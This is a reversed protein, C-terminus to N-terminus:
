GLSTITASPPLSCRLRTSSAAFPEREWDRGGMGEAALAIFIERLSAPEVVVREAGPLNVRVDDEWGPTGHDCTVFAVRGGARKPSLWTPPLGNMETLSGNEKLVKILECAAMGTGTGYDVIRIEAPAKSGKIEKIRRSITQAASEVLTATPPAAWGCPDDLNGDQYLLRHLAWGDENGSIDAPDGIEVMADHLNAEAM